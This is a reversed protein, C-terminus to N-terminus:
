RSVNRLFVINAPALAAADRAQPTLAGSAPDIRFIAIDNSDQNAALLFRGSPDIVIFRPTTGGSAINGISAAFRM